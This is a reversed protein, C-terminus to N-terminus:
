KEEEIILLGNENLQKIFEEIDGRAEERSVEFNEDMVEMLEDMTKQQELAEWLLKGSSNLIIVKSEPEDQLSVPIVLYEGAIERIVYGQKVQYRMDHKGGKLASKGWKITYNTNNYFKKKM